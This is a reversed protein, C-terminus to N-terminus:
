TRRYLGFRGPAYPALAISSPRESVLDAVARATAPAAALGVHGHGFAYVIDASRASRGIVPLGDPTSPRHGMWRTVHEPGIGRLGPYTRRLHGLLIDARRWDPPAGAAALEVQGAARLGASTPTNAMKGDSPMLPTRPGAPPDRVIVHYGRESALPVHDGAASAVAASAIGAAVIARDCAIEGAETRVARLRGADTEFDVGRERVVKAGRGEAWRVLAAVYRGPDLCHAGAPVHIGFGYRPDLDPEAARLASGDLETWLLGNDRRLRWALAEAEFQGRGPYVYLLGARRILQPAGVEAALMAHETPANELLPRLARATREVRAISAGAWVFRLLWPLLGPIAGPRIVFPGSPDALFGPVKRWLGPTSVPVVSAPSIWAGNGYSAAQPGGPDGPEVFTVRHGDRLLELACCAGVIGAGIVAVHLTV